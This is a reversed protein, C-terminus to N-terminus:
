YLDHVRFTIPALPKELIGEDLVGLYSPDFQGKCIDRWGKSCFATFHHFIWPDVKIHLTSAKALLLIHKKSFNMAVQFQVTMKDSFGHYCHM